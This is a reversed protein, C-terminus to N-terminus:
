TDYGAMHRWAADRASEHGTVALLFPEREIELVVSPEVTTVTATRPVDTLLAVEGAGGGRGLRRVAVGDRVVDVQGSSIAFYSDGVDGQQMLVVGADVHREVAARAVSELAAPPLPSFVPNTRLVAIAM